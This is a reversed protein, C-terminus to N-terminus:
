VSLISPPHPSLLPCWGGGYVYNQSETEAQVSRTHAPVFNFAIYLSSLVAKIKDIDASGVFYLDVKQNM